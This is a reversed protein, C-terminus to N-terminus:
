ATTAAKPQFEPANQDFRWMHPPEIGLTRLYAYLQGRHHFYEDNIMGACMWGPLTMDWPTQVTAQLHADTVSKISADGAQWCDRCFRLVDDKTKLSAVTPKEDSEEISAKILGAPIGKVLMAYMHVLLEKPTRMNKVPHSDFADAPISAAIRMTIGNAQRIHDWWGLFSQRNQM